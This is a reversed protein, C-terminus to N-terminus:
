TFMLFILSRRSSDVTKEKINPKLIVELYDINLIVKSRLYQLYTPSSTIGVILVTRAVRTM